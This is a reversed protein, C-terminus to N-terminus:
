REPFLPDPLDYFRIDPIEPGHGGSSAKSDRSVVEGLQPLNKRLKSAAELLRVQLGPDYPLQFARPRPLGTSEGFSTVWLYIAGEADTSKNPEVIHVGDLRFREPLEFATPWGQLPPYSRWTVAILLGVAAVSGLRAWWPWSSRFVVVALMLLLVAFASFLLVMGTM